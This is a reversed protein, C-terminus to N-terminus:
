LHQWRLQSNSIESLQMAYQTYSTAGNRLSAVIAVTECVVYTM